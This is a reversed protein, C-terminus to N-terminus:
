GAVAPTQSAVLDDISQRLVFGRAGIKIRTLQGSDMLEFLTSKGIGGLLHRAEDYNVLVQDARNM